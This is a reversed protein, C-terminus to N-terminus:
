REQEKPILEGFGEDKLAQIIRSKITSRIEKGALFARVSRPDVAARVSVVRTQHPDLTKMMYVCRLRM